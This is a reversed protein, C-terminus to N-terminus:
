CLHGQLSARSLHTPCPMRGAVQPDTHEPASTQHEKPQAKAKQKTLVPKWLGAQGPVSRLSRIKSTMSGKGGGWCTGDNGAGSPSNIFPEAPQTSAVPQHNRPSTVLSLVSSCLHTKNIPCISKQIQSIEYISSQQSREVVPLCTAAHYQKTGSCSCGSMLPWQETTWTGLEAQGHGWM